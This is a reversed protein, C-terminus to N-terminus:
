RSSPEWRWATPSTAAAWRRRLQRDLRHQPHQRPGSAADTPGSGSVHLLPRLGPESLGAASADLTIEEPKALIGEGAINGLFDIRGFERDLRAFMEQIAVPNSVDCTVPVARRGLAAIDAATRQLGDTNLDALMLDAGHEALALASARGMGSAAGSVLAVRNSLDFLTM